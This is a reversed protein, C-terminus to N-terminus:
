VLNKLNMILKIMFDFSIRINVTIIGFENCDSQSQRFPRYNVHHEFHELNYVSGNLVITIERFLTNEYKFIKVICRGATLVHKGTILCGSCFHNGNERLSVVYKMEDTEIDSARILKSEM